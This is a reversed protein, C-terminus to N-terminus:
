QKRVLYEMERKKHLYDKVQHCSGSELLKINNRKMYYLAYEILKDRIDREKIYTIENLMFACHFEWLHTELDNYELSYETEDIITYFKQQRPDHQIDM